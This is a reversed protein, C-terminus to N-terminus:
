ADVFIPAPTELFTRIRQIFVAADWDDIVRHDFSSSPNMLTRRIFAARSWVPRTAIRNDGFIAVEPYNIIPTSAIGGLAGLSSVTITSRANIRNTTRIEPVGM